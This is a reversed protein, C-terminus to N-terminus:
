KDLSKQVSEKEEDSGGGSMEGAGSSALDKDDGYVCLASEDSASVIFEIKSLNLLDQIWAMEIIAFWM